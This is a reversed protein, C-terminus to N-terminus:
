INKYNRIFDDYKMKSLPKPIEGSWDLNFDEKCKKCRCFSLIKSKLEDGKNYDLILTFNIPHNNRDIIEITRTSGCSPCTDERIKTMLSIM